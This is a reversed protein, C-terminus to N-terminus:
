PAPGVLLVYAASCILATICALALHDLGSPPVPATPKGHTASTCGDRNTATEGSQAVRTSKFFLRDPPSCAVGVLTGAARPMRVSTNTQTDM